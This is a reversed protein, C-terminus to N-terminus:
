PAPTGDSDDPTDPTPTPLALARLDSPLEYDPYKRRFRKLERKAADADGRRNLERIRELWAEPASLAEATADPRDSAEDPSVAEASRKASLAESSEFGLADPAAAATAADPRQMLEVAAARQRNLKATSEARAAREAAADPTSTQSQTQPAPAILPVLPPSQAHPHRAFDMRSESRAPPPAREEPDARRAKREAIGGVSSDAEDKFHQAKRADQAQEALQRQRAEEPERAAEAPSAKAPAFEADTASVSVAEGTIRTEPQRWLDILLSVSLVFSAATAAIPLWRPRRLARPAPMTHASDAAALISADLSAPAREGRSAERYAASIASRGALFDELASDDPPQPPPPGNIESSM